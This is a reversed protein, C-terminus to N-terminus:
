EPSRKQLNGMEFQFPKDVVDEATEFITSHIFTGKISGKSVM